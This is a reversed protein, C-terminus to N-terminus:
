FSAYWIGYTADWTITFTGSTVPLDNAGFSIAAILRNSATSSYVCCCQPASGNAWTVANTDGWTMTSASEDFILAGSSVTLGPSTLTGDTGGGTTYGTQSGVENSAWTGSNYSESANKNAGTISETFLAVMITDSNLDIATGELTDKLFYGNVYSTTLSM